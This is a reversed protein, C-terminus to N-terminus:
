SGSKSLIAGSKADIVFRTVAGQRSLTVLQYVLGNGSRCLKVNIVDGRAARSVAASIGAVHRAQGSDIAQRTEQASLCDAAYATDSLGLSMGVPSVLLLLFSIITRIKM